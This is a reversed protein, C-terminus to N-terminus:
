MRRRATQWRSSASTVPSLDRLKARVQSANPHQLDDLIILAQQWADRAAGTNGAAHHADGIHMLAEAQSGLDGLDRYPDVARLYCAVAEAHHGLHHHAYGLSDWADAEGARDGLDHLLAVAQECHALARRYDGLVAYSWGVANLARGEGGRHGAVRYLKLAQRAEGLALWPVKTV